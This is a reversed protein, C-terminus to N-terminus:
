SALSRNTDRAGASNTSASRAFASRNASSIASSVASRSRRPQEGAGHGVGLRRPVDLTERDEAHSEAELPHPEDEIRELTRVLM